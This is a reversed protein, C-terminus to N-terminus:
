IWPETDGTDLSFCLHNIAKVLRELEERHGSWDFLADPAFVRVAGKTYTKTM